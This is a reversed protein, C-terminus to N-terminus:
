HRYTASYINFMAMIFEAVIYCCRGKIFSFAQVYTVYYYAIVFYYLERSLLIMSLTARQLRDEFIM